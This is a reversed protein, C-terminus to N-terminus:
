FTRTRVREAAGLIPGDRLPPGPPLRSGRDRLAARFILARGSRPHIIPGLVCVVGSSEEHHLDEIPDRELLASLTDLVPRIM